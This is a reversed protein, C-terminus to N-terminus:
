RAGPQRQRRLRSVEWRRLVRRRLHRGQTGDHPPRLQGHSRGVTACQPREVGLGRLQQEPPLHPLGRRLLPGRLHARVAVAGDDM